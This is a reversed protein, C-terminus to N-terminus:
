IKGSLEENRGDQKIVYFLGMICWFYQSLEIRFVIDNSGFNIATVSILIAGFLYKIQRDKCLFIDLFLYFLMILYLLLGVVGLNMLLAIYDNHFPFQHDHGLGRGFLQQTLNSDLFLNINNIILTVRGSTATDFDIEEKKFVISHIHDSFAIGVIISLAIAVLFAKKNKGEYIFM